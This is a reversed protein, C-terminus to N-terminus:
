LEYAYVQMNQNFIPQRAIYREVAKGHVEWAVESAVIIAYVSPVYWRRGKSEPRIDTGDSDAVGGNKPTRNYKGFM